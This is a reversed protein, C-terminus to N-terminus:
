PRPEQRKPHGFGGDYRATKRSHHSASMAVLNNDDYGHPGSPGLGDRHDVQQAAPRRWEPLAACEDCECLPHRRLFDKAYTRWRHDYPKNHGAPRRARSERQAELRHTECRAGTYVLVGCGPEVCLSPPSTPM